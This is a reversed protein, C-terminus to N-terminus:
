EGSVAKIFAQMRAASAQKMQDTVHGYVDLTFAATAHGLNGQVTKIDDGAQISAIAYSHRLDHLRANPLGMSAVIKKYNDYVTHPSVREGVENCFVFGNDQWMSGAMLREQNQATRHKKLLDMVFPAPTITRRKGNKTSVLRYEGPQGPINQLQKNILLTGRRFDVCDWTLGCIEGRRMGTFLMTLLLSEYRNGRVEKMFRAIEDSDLPRIEKREVRPLECFDAPNFRLYGIKVAQQLAKHLVGHINKVTKPSLSASKEYVIKGDVRIAKGNKDHKPVLMGEEILDNYFHQITHTNLESLKWGGLAPAIHNRIQQSYSLVTHPKVSKLYDEQWITLWQGLTMKCPEQYTGKDIENTAERLKETVEKQTKGTVSRQVQKGTGPDYGTTYRAEWYTYEKGNRTVTKKRITGAGAANKTNKKNNGRPM